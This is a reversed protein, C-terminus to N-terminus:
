AARTVTPIRALSSHRTQPWHSLRPPPRRPSVNHHLHHTIYKQSRSTPTSVRTSTRVFTTTYIPMPVIAVTITGAINSASSHPTQSHKQTTCYEYIWEDDLNTTGRSTDIPNALKQFRIYSLRGAQLGSAKIFDSHAQVVRPTSVLSARIAISKELM